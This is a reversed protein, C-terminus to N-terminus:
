ASRGALIADRYAQLGTALVEADTSTSLGNVAAYGVLDPVTELDWVIVNM